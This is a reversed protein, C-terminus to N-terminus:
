AEAFGRLIQKNQEHVNASPVFETVIKNTATNITQVIQNIIDTTELDTSILESLMPAILLLGILGVPIKHIFSHETKSNNNSFFRKISSALFNVRISECPVLDFIYGLLVSQFTDATKVLMPLLTF